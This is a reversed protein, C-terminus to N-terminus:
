NTEVEHRRRYAAAEEIERLKREINEEGNKAYPNDPNMQRAVAILHKWPLYWFANGSRSYARPEGEPNNTSVGARFSKMGTYIILARYFYDIRTNGFTDPVDPFHVNGREDEFAKPENDKLFNLIKEKLIGYAKKRATNDDIKMAIRSEKGYFDDIIGFAGVIHNVNFNFPYFIKNGDVVYTYGGAFVSAKVESWRKEFYMRLKESDGHNMYMKVGRLQEFMKRYPVTKCYESPDKFLRCYGEMIRQDSASRGLGADKTLLRYERVGNKGTPCPIDHKWFKKVLLRSLDMVDDESVDATKGGKRKMSQIQLECFEAMELLEQETMEKGKVKNALIIARTVLDAIGTNMKSSNILDHVEILKTWIEEDTVNAVSEDSKYKSKYEEKPPAPRRGVKFKAENSLVVFCGDGDEDGFMSYWMWSPVYVTDKTPNDLGSDLSDQCNLFSVLPNRGVAVYMHKKLMYKYKQELKGPWSIFNVMEGEALYHDFGMKDLTIDAQIKFGFPATNCKVVKREYASRYRTMAHKYNSLYMPVRWGSPVKEDKFAYCLHKIYETVADGLDGDKDAVKLLWAWGHADGEMAHRLMKARKDAGKELLLKEYAEHDLRAGSQGGLSSSGSSTPAAILRLGGVPDTLSIRIVDGPKFDIPYSKIVSLSCVGHVKGAMHGYGNRTLIEMMSFEDTCFKLKALAPERFRAQPASVQFYKPSKGKAELDARKRPNMYKKVLFKTSTVVAGDHIPVGEWGGPIKGIYDSLVDGLYEQPSVILIDMYEHKSKEHNYLFASSGSILPQVKQPNDHKALIDDGFVKIFQKRTGVLMYSANDKKPDYIAFRIEKGNKRDQTFLLQMALQYVDHRNDSHDEALAIVEIDGRKIYEYIPTHQAIELQYDTIVDDLVPMEKGFVPNHTKPIYETGNETVFRKLKLARCTVHVVANPNIGEYYLIQRKMSYDRTYQRPDVSATMAKRAEREANEKAIALDIHLQAVKAKYHSTLSTEVVTGDQMTLRVLKGEIVADTVVKWNIRAM